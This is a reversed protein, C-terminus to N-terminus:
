VTLDWHMRLHTGEVLHFKPKGLNNMMTHRAWTSEESVMTIQKNKLLGLTLSTRSYLFAGPGQLGLKGNVLSVASYGPGQAACRHRQQQRGEGRGGRLSVSQGKRMSVRGCEKSLKNQYFRRGQAFVEERSLALGQPSLFDPGSGLKEWLCRLVFHRLPLM